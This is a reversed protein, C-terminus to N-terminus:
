TCINVTSYKVQNKMEREKMIAQRERQLAEERQREKEKEM